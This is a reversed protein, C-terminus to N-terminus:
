KIVTIKVKDETMNLFKDVAIFTFVFNGEHNPLGSLKMNESM